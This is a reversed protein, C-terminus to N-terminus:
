ITKNKTKKNNKGNIWFSLARENLNLYVGITRRTSSVFDQTIVTAPNGVSQIGVHINNISIPCIIEWYHAGETFTMNAVVFTTKDNGSADKTSICKATLGSHSIQVDNSSLSPCFRM